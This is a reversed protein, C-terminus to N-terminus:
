IAFVATVNNLPAAEVELVIKYMLGAFPPIHMVLIPIVLVVVDAAVAVIFKPPTANNDLKCTGAFLVCNISISCIINLVSLMVDEADVV